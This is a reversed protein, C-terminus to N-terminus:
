KIVVSRGTIRQWAASAPLGTKGAASPPLQAALLGYNILGEISLWLPTSNFIYRGFFLNLLILTPLLCGSQSTFVVGNTPM